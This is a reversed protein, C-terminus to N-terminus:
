RIVQYVCWVTMWAAWLAIGLIALFVPLLVILWPDDFSTEFIISYWLKFSIIGFLIAGITGLIRREIPPIEKPQAVTIMDSMELKM